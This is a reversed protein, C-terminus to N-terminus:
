MNVLDMSPLRDVAQMAYWGIANQHVENVPRLSVDRFVGGTVGLDDRVSERFVCGLLRFVLFLAWGFHCFPLGLTGGSLLSHIELFLKVVSIPVSPVELKTPLLNRRTPAM